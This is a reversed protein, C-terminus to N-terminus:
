FHDEKRSVFHEEPDPNLHEVEMKYRWQDFYLNGGSWEVEGRQFDNPESRFHKKPPHLEQRIDDSGTLRYQDMNGFNFHSVEPDPDNRLGRSPDAPLWGYPEVYFLAWDHLGARWPLTVWGSQWRAPVGCIRCLTIFLLAQIGCDGRRNRACYLSMNEITAYENAYTYRINEHIWEFIARAKLYPNQEDGVIEKALDVLEPKFLLHPAQEATYEQYLPSDVDYGAVAEPDVTHRQAYRTYEYEVQFETPIGSEAKRELYVTRQLCDNPAITHDSPWSSLLNINSQTPTERPYIMWCRVHEGDPVVDADVTVTLRVLFRQPKLLTEGTKKHEELIDTILNHADENRDGGMITKSKDKRLAAADESLWFLNSVASSFYRWEGEIYRAELVGQDRWASMKERTLGSTEECLQEYVDDESLRFDKKIRELKEAEIQILRREKEDTTQDALALLKESAQTFHGGLIDSKIDDSILSSCPVHSYTNFLFFM